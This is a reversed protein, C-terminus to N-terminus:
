RCGGTSKGVCRQSFGFCVPPHGCSSVPQYLTESKGGQLSCERRERTTTGGAETLKYAIRVGPSSPSM